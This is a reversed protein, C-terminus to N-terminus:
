RAKISGWTGADMTLSDGYATITLGHVQWLVSMSGTDLCQGEGEFAIGLWDGGTIWYANLCITDSQQISGEGYIGEQWIENWATGTSGLEIFFDVTGDVVSADLSYPIRVVVSDTGDPVFYIMEPPGEGTFLLADWSDASTQVVAGDEGFSWDLDVYWGDPLQGFDTDLVIGESCTQGCLASLMLAAAAALGM